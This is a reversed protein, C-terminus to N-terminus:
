VLDFDMENLKRRWFDNRTVVGSTKSMSEGLFCDTEVAHNPRYSYPIVVAYCRNQIFCLLTGKRNNWHRQNHVRVTRGMRMNFMAFAVVTHQRVGCYFHFHKINRQVLFLGCPLEQCVRRHLRYVCFLQWEINIRNAQFFFFTLFIFM